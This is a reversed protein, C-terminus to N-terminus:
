SMVDFFTIAARSLGEVVDFLPDTLEEVLSVWLLRLYEREDEDAVFYVFLRVSLDFLVSHLLEKCFV